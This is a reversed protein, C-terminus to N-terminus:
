MSHVDAVKIKIKWMFKDCLCRQGYSISGPKQYGLAEVAMQLVKTETINDLKKIGTINQYDILRPHYWGAKKTSSWVCSSCHLDKKQAGKTIRTPFDQ